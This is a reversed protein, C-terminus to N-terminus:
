ESYDNRETPNSSLYQVFEYENGNDDFFYDRIRYQQVVKEYSREYGADLLRKAVAEIDEVVFGLHNVGSQQYDQTAPKVHAQENLAIYTDDNGIHIWRKGNSTGEGRLKFEPFATKFFTFTEDINIVTINAHELYM